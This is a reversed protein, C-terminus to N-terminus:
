RAAVRNILFPLYEDLVIPIEPSKPQAGTVVAPALTRTFLPIALFALIGPLGRAVLYIATHSLVHKSERQM